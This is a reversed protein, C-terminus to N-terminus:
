NLLQKILDDAPRYGPIIVGDDLLIAPTGSVGLTQGLRYHEAVPNECRKDTISQRAKLRTMATQPDDACWASVVKDYSSSGIGARPFAMYRVAIGEANLAPVEQHLKQCYYCDVDTFVTIQAKQEGEAPFIIMSGPDLDALLARREVAQSQQSLNVLGSDTLQFLEGSFFYSVNADTYLTPGQAIKIRYYGDIGSASVSSVSFRSDISAFVAQAKSRIAAFDADTAAAAETPQLSAPAAQTPSSSGAQPTPETSDAQCASQMSILALCIVAYVSASLGSM